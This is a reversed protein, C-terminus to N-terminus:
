KKICTSDYVFYGNEVTFEEIAEELTDCSSKAGAAGSLKVSNDTLDKYLIAYWKGVDPATTSYRYWYEESGWDPNAPSYTWTNVDDGTPATTIKEYSRTYKIFLRGATESDMVVVLNDGAYSIYGEGSSDVSTATVIYKEGFDSVWTGVINVKYNSITDPQKCGVLVLCAVFMMAAFLRSFKLNKM